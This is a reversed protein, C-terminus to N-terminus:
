KLSEVWKNFSSRSASNSIAGEQIDYQPYAKKLAEYSSQLSSSGSTAFVVIRKGSFDYSDLFTYILNPAKYWWVPFGLYITDYSSADFGPKIEPRMDPNDKEITTRSTESEYDLDEDTYPQVPEISYLTAGTAKAVEKAAKETNGTASFYAVVIKPDSVTSTKQSNKGSCASIVTIAVFAFLLSLTKKM